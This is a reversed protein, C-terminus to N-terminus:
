QVLSKAIQPNETPQFTCFTAEIDNNSLLSKQMKTNRSAKFCCKRPLKRRHSGQIILTKSGFYPYLILDNQNLTPSVEVEGWSTPHRYSRNVNSRYLSFSKCQQNEAPFHKCEFVM